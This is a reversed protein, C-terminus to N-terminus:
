QSRSEAVADDYGKLCGEDYQKSMCKDCPEVTIYLAGRASVGSSSQNCLGEGCSCYVEIEVSVEPM